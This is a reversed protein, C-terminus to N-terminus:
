PSGDKRSSRWNLIDGRVKQYSDKGKGNLKSIFMQNDGVKGATIDKIHPSQAWSTYFDDFNKKMSTTTPKKDNSVKETGIEIFLTIVIFM